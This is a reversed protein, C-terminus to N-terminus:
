SVTTSIKSFAIASASLRTYQRSPVTNSLLTLSAFRYLVSLVSLQNSCHTTMINRHEKRNGQERPRNREVILESLKGFSETHIWSETGRELATRIRQHTESESVARTASIPSSCGAEVLNLEAHCGASSKFDRDVDSRDM